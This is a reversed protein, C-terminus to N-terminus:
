KSDSAGIVNIPKDKLWAEVNDIMMDNSVRSTRKTWAAIHPTAIIKPHRALRQYYPDYSDGTQVGGADLAAGALKNADLAAILADTDFIEGGTVSIFYADPKLWSFFNKNLLGRTTPNLSLADVVVDANEVIEELNDGRHFYHVEMDLSKCIKGVRSGVNGAGLISVSSHSAGKDRPPMQGKPLDLVNMYHPLRRLCALLMMVVWESVADKNCGPSRTITVNRANTKDTDIGGTGVFPLSVFVDKLEYIKQKFGFRGTCIVDFGEIRKLWADYDKALDNYIKVEGLENLRNVQDPFLDLDQTVVIKPKKANM